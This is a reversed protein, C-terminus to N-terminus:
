WIGVLVTIEASIVVSRKFIVQCIEEGVGFHESYPWEQFDLSKSLDLIKVRKYKCEVNLIGWNLYNACM